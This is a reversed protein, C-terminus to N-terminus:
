DDPCECKLGGGNQYVARTDCSGCLWSKGGVRAAVEKALASAVNALDEDDMYELEDLHTNRCFPRVDGDRIGNFVVRPPRNMWNPDYPTPRGDTTLNLEGKKFLHQSASGLRTDFVATDSHYRKWNPDDKYIREGAETLIPDGVQHLVVLRLYPSNEPNKEVLLNGGEDRKYVPYTYVEYAREKQTDTVTTMKEVMSDGIYVTGEPGGDIVQVMEKVKIPIARNAYDLKLDGKRHKLVRRLGFFSIDYVDETYRVHKNSQWPVRNLNTDLVVDGVKTGHPGWLAKRHYEYDRQPIEIVGGGGVELIM